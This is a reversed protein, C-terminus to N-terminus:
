AGPSSPPVPARVLDLGAVARDIRRHLDVNAVRDTVVELLWVGGASAAASVAPRLEAPEEVRRYALDHFAALREFARGHPSGFLEEFHAPLDAQPLFHFIGGGDNNLVVFVCDPRRALLFGNADHLMSLDGALAVMPGDVLAVGLATSVFGDIGSAGRNALVRLGQRPAMFADVDRIPMSSAVVLTGPVPVAAAVDRAAAPESPRGLGDLVTDVTARVMSDAAEWSTRWRGQGGPRLRPMLEELLRSPDAVVVESVSRGPDMGEGHADVLVQSADGALLSLLTRSAGVRGIRVVLDPRHARRFAEHGLLHHYSSVARGQRVGSLAEALVPWGLREALAHVPEPDVTSEGVVLLGRDAESWRGAIRDLDSPSPLPGDGLSERWPRGAPRGETAGRFPEARSRGDDTSPVTPERFALNLHVPGPPGSLGAAAAAARSATSRWYADVGVRDEAVGVECFWRVREGYLRIQDITQNAGTHRDEPPRDATLALLPIRAADAEVVAPLLNAAATGSTTVVVAPRRNARGMGLALFGASREDLSVHVRIGEQEVAALALATSRSGPAVVVERVGGRALEDFLVRALATSPNPATM